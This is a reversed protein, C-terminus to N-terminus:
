CLQYVGYVVSAVGVLLGITVVDTKFKEQEIEKAMAYDLQERKLVQDRIKTPKPTIGEPINEPYMSDLFQEIKGITIGLRLYNPDSPHSKHHIKRLYQRFILACGNLTRSQLILKVTTGKRIKIHETLVKPNQFVLELTAIAMVQPIACFNFSTQEEVLSLYQLVDIVHDLANCVLESICNLGAEQNEPLMFKRLEDTYKGWIERPWFARGDKQDEEYDRIINTKQLFLGMGKFLQINEKLQENGFQAIVILQTLGDGVLGAVYYCYLDYDEITLLGNSNFDENEIYDAMGNGMKKTIEKIVRQYEPKLKHYEALVVDFEVLVCRDKEDPHNGDFTWDKTELKEDFTRLVPLKIANDITMDDEVTDLARLVLYFIMIADRLEPHLEEIVAAFSRSTTNL